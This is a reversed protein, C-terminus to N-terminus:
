NSIVPLYCCTCWGDPANKNIKNTCDRLPIPLNKFAEDLNFIKGNQKMCNECCKTALIEIKKIFGEKCYRHLEMKNAQRQLHTSPRGKQHLYLAQDFYISSLDQFNNEAMKAELLKNLISWYVDTRSPPKMFKKFRETLLETEKKILKEFVKDNQYFRRICGELISISEQEQFTIEWEKQIGRKEQETVIIRQRDSPSTAVCYYNNCYECRTKKGPIKVLEKHCYPCKKEALLYM